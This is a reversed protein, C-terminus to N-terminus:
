QLDIGAKNNVSNYPYYEPDPALGKRVPLFLMENARHEFAEPGTILEYTVPEWVLNVVPAATGGAILEAMYLEKLEELLQDRFAPWWLDLKLAEEQVMLYMADPLLLYDDVSILSNAQDRNLRRALVDCYRKQTLIGSAGKLHMVIYWLPTDFAGPLYNM